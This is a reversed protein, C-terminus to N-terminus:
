CLGTLLCLTFEYLVCELFYRSRKTCRTTLLECFFYTQLRRKLTNLSLEPGSLQWAAVEVEVPRLLLVGVVSVMWDTSPLAARDVQASHCLASTSSWHRRSNAYLQGDLVTSCNWAPMSLHASRAQITSSRHCRALPAWWVLLIRTM